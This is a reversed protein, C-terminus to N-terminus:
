GVSDRNAIRRLALKAVCDTGYRVCWRRNTLDAIGFRDFLMKAVHACVGGCLDPPCGVHPRMLDIDGISGEAGTSQAARMLPGSTRWRVTWFAFSVPNGAPLQSSTSGQQRRPRRLTTAGHATVSSAFACALSWSAKAKGTSRAAMLARRGYLVIVTPVDEADSSRSRDAVALM